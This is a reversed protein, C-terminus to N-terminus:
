VALRWAINYSALNHALMCYLEQTRVQFLAAPRKKFHTDLLSGVANQSSETTQGAEMPPRLMCSTTARLAEPPVLAMQLKTM